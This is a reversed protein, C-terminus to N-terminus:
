DLDRKCEEVVTDLRNNQATKEAVHDQLNANEREERALQEATAALKENVDALSDRCTALEARTARTERQAAAMRGEAQLLATTQEECESRTAMLERNNRDLENETEQLRRLADELDSRIVTFESHVRELLGSEPRHPGSYTLYQDEVRDEVAAYSGRSQTWYDRPDANPVDRPAGGAVKAWFSRPDDKPLMLMSVEELQSQLSSFRKAYHAEADALKKELQDLRGAGGGGGGGGGGSIQELFPAAGGVDNSCTDYLQIRYTCRGNNLVCRTRVGTPEDTFKSLPECFVGAGLCLVLM